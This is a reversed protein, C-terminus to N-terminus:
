GREQKIQPLKDSMLLGKAGADQEGVRLNCGDCSELANQHVREGRGKRKHDKAKESRDDTLLARVAEDKGFPRPLPVSDCSRKEKAKRRLYVRTGRTPKSM